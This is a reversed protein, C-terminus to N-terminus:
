RINALLEEIQGGNWRTVVNGQTDIQVFTHQYTVSYQSALEREEADTETDNYNVRIVQVDAPLLEMNTRFNADAPRCTPCWNAYFFLVRRATTTNSLISPYHEQYRSDPTLGPAETENTNNETPNIETGNPEETVVTPATRDNMTAVEIPMGSQVLGWVIIVGGGILVVLLILLTTGKM